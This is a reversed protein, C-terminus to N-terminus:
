HSGNVLRRALGTSTEREAIKAQDHQVGRLELQYGYRAILLAEALNHDKVRSLRAKPYMLSARERSRQKRAPGSDSKDGRVGMATKWALPQVLQLSAGIVQVSALVSGMTMGQSFAAICGNKPMAHVQEVYAVVTHTGIHPLLLETLQMPDIWAAKGWRTIPLDDAAVMSGDTASLLAWAGTLGPDIGLLMM